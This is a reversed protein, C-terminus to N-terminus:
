GDRTWASGAFACIGEEMANEIAVVADLGCREGALFVGKGSGCGNCSCWCGGVSVALEELASEGGGWVNCRRFEM